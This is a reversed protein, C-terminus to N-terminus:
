QNKIKSKLLSDMFNSDFPLCFFIASTIITLLSLASVIGGFREKNESTQYWLGTVIYTLIGFLWFVDVRYRAIFFPTWLIDVSVIIFLTFIILAILLGLHKDKIAKNVPKKLFGLLSLLLIPFSILLGMRLSKKDNGNAQSVFLFSIIGKIEAKISFKSLFDSYQSQDAITLQYTQGFEFPNDFRCYNYLMLLIGIIVYPLAAIVLKFFLGANLKRKKLFQILLPLVLINALAIPPRCGFTLAGALSGLFAFAIAKNESIDDYVAKFFFYLSWVEFCIGSIIPICYLAPTATVYWISMFSFASSLLAYLTCSIDNFFLEALKKFLLFVGIIFLITFLQTARYSTLSKGTLLRYPVFVFVAPVVGFYMYYKGKYFAHDFHYKVKKEVRTKYDYPNEMELLAPDIDDYDIYLKGEILSEAMLEYQNRHSPKEGNWYPSWDMPFVSSAITLVLLVIVLRKQPKKIESLPTENAKSVPSGLIIATIIAGAFLIAGIIYKVTM